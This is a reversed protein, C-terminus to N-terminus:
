QQQAAALPRSSNNGLRRCQSTLWASKNRVDRLRAKTCGNLVGLAAKDPLAALARCLPLAIQTEQKPNATQCVATEDLWPVHQVLSWTYRRCKRASRLHLIHANANISKGSHETPIIASWVYRLSHSDFDTPGVVNGSTLSRLKATVAPSLVANARQERAALQVRLLDCAYTRLEVSSTSLGRAAPSICIGDRDHEIGARRSVAAGHAM